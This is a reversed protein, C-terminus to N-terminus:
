ELLFVCWVVGAAVMVSLPRQLRLGWMGGGEEAEMIWSDLSKVERLLLLLSLLTEEDEELMLLVSAVAPLVVLLVVM